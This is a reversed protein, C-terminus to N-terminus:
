ITLCLHAQNWVTELCIQLSFTCLNHESFNNCLTHASLATAFIPHESLLHM